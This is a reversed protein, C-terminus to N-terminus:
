PQVAGNGADALLLWAFGLVGRYCREYEDQRQRALAQADARGTRELGARWGAEFADWEAQTSAEAATCRLGADAALAILGALAEPLPGFTELAWGRPEAAWFGDGFLLLGGPQLHGRLAQLAPGAGGWAHAAGVCVVLDGRDRFGRADGEVLDVRDVLGTEVARRRGRALAVADDDVGTGTTGPSAGVIRLLLEAWGCGLDLVHGGPVVRLERVLRAAREEGLPANFSLGAHALRRLAAAEPV